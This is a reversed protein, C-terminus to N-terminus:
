KKKGWLGVWTRDVRPKWKGKLVWLRAVDGVQLFGRPSRKQNWRGVDGDRRFGRRM